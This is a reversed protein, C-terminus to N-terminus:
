NLFHERKLWRICADLWPKDSMKNNLGFGHGGQEYSYFEVQVQHMQLANTFETSNAYPVIDDDKAHMIFVPPTQDTVQLENSYEKINEPTPDKGLLNQM